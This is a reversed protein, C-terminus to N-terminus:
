CIIVFQKRKRVCSKLWCLSVRFKWDAPCSDSKGPKRTTEQKEANRKFGGAQTSPHIRGSLRRKIIVASLAAAQNVGCAEYLYILCAVMCVCETLCNQTVLHVSWSPRQQSPFHLHQSSAPWASCLSFRINFAPVKM